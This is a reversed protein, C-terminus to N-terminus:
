ELELNHQSVSDNGQETVYLIGSNDVMLFYPKRVIFHMVQPTRDEAPMKVIQNSEYNAVYLNDNKDIALGLPGKIAGDKALVKREGNTDILVISNSSYNAVYLNGKSDRALGTPGEFGSYTKIEPPKVNQVEKVPEEFVEPKQKGKEISRILESIMGYNPDNVPIKKIYELSKEKDGKNYYIVAIKNIVDYDDSHYGLVTMFSELAKDYNGLHQQLIGLNYYADIFAPEIKIATEFSSVAEKYNNQSALDIAKNYLKVAKPDFDAYSAANFTFALMLGILINKLKM